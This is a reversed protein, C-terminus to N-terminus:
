SQCLVLVIVTKSRVTPALIVDVAHWPFVAAAPRREIVENQGGIMRIQANFANFADSSIGYGVTTSGKEHHVM